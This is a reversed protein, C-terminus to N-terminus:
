IKDKINYWIRVENNRIPKAITAEVRLWERSNELQEKISKDYIKIKTITNLYTIPQNLYYTNKHKYLMGYDILPIQIDQIDPKKIGDFAIDVNLVKFRKLLANIVKLSEKPLQKTPQHLGNISVECYYDKPKKAKLSKEISKNTFRMFLLGNTGLLGNISSLPYIISGVEDDGIFKEKDDLLITHSPNIYKHIFKEFAKTSSEFRISDIGKSYM